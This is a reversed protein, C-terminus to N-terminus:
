CWLENIYEEYESVSLNRDLLYNYTIGYSNCIWELFVNNCQTHSKGVRRFSNM